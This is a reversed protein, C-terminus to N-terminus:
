IRECGDFEITAEVEEPIALVALASRGSFINIDRRNFNRPNFYPTTMKWCQYGHDKLRLEIHGVGQDDAVAVFLKPRLRWLTDSAGDLVALTDTEEGIKLWDLKGLRLEDITETATAPMPEGTSVTVTQMDGQVPASQQQRLSRKMVTVNGIGNAALNQRLVQQFLSRSEYLLFHGASGVVPALSLVHAGIGAGAELLVSGPAILRGLLDTQARLYEGYMAISDGVIFQDPFYQVIGMATEAPATRGKFHNSPPLTPLLAIPTKRGGDVSPTRAQSRESQVLAGLAHTIRAIVDNWDGHWRQRFLRVTPYWPTDERDVMWRWEAPMAVLMWVPKGLAGALHAVSTDVSIVLDMQDIAAATDAFDNLEPGLDILRM